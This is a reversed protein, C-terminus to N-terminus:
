DWFEEGGVCFWLLIVAIKMAFKLSEVNFIPAHQQM